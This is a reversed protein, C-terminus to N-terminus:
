NLSIGIVSAYDLSDEKNMTPIHADLSMVNMWVNGTSVPVKLSADLYKVVGPMSMDRGVLIINEVDAIGEKKGHSNWYALVKNIEDKLSSM